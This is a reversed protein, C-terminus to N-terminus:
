FPIECASLDGLVTYIEQSSVASGSLVLAVGEDQQRDNQPVPRSATLVLSEGVKYVKSGLWKTKQLAAVAVQYDELVGVVYDIRRDAVKSLDRSQRATM